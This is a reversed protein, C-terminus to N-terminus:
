GTSTSCRGRHGTALAAAGARGGARRRHLGAAPQPGPAPGPRTRRHDVAALLQLHPHRLHDAGPDDARDAGGAGAAARPSCWVAGASWTPYMEEVAIDFGLSAFQLVRDAATLGYIRRMTAVVISLSAHTVAVGKPEGTSGSTFLVYALNGPEPRRVPTVAARPGSTLEDVTLVTADAEALRHVTVADAVAYRAGAAGLLRALYAPHPHLEAASLGRGGQSHGAADRGNGGRAGPAGRRHGRARGRGRASARRDARVARAARRLQDGGGWSM